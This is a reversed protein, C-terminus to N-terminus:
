EAEEKLEDEKWEYKLEMKEIDEGSMGFTEKLMKEQWERRKQASQTIYLAIM